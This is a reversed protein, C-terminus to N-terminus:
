NAPARGLLDALLGELALLARARHSVANKEAPTMEAFTQRTQPYLFVSDYGFGHDGREEETIMGSVSGEVIITKQGPRALAVATRFRATRHRASVGALLELLKARNGAYTAGPGAFRASYVGPAGHLADVELGTDDAVAWLGTFRAASEAKLAANAELTQGTEEVHPARAWEWLGRMAVPLKQLIAEIEKAKDRNQTAIVLTTSSETL